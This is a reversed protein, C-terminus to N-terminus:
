RTAVSTHHHACFAEAQDAGWRAPHWTIAKDQPGILRVAGTEADVQDVRYGIGPRPKGKAGKRFTVIQGRQYSAAQGAEARTFGCPELM